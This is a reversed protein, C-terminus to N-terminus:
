DGELKELEAKLRAVEATRRALVAETSERKRAAETARKEAAALERRLSAVARDADAVASTTEALDEHAATAEAEATRLRTRAAILRKQDIREKPTPAKSAAAHKPEAAPRPLAPVIPIREVLASFDPPDLDRTLRGEALLRRSEDSMVAWRLDNTVRELVARNAPLGAETLRDRAANVVRDIAERQAALAGQYV